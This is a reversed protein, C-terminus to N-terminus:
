QLQDGTIPDVGTDMDGSALMQFVEALKAQVDASVSSEADHFAALGVGDNAADFLATGSQFTGTAATTIANYVANDVRKMASSVIMDAGDTTGGGFTTFYEDQDVGIVWVGDQAAGLIGGSGTPGGAGFIVDAGEAVQSLAATKGRAPDTFSDIYVGITDCDPCAYKVGNEYGNRYKKVPPIEMGAVIGVTKSETLLGALVGALFGAQDERFVIGQLNDPYTEYANDVIAFEIDPYKEAMAATTEGMMFGVTVIMDYGEQAFQEVNKEYDTPQATEIFSTELGLEDAARIMGEYAYQNFTGDDVKGVDTVLGVKIPTVGAPTEAMASPGAYSGPAPVEADIVDGSVGDVGTTLEGSALKAKIDDLSAVVDDPIASEADHFPALGVGDNSAEYLATGGTFSGRVLSQISNYVANDVRKMASSLLKDAGDTTGGGFTTFYEDQDVGIVWAGDQAAGLIGGSGTPGGAGFIVDAGEAIQSLAATKGRAPDTFSDIYVGVTDCDACVYKAGIEYGNRYKKVPPIEMGAVIGVTQSESIMGALAGALFGAQDERFVLGQLNDPYTEYANDVIAFKIDPYKEAMKQTTEGMMFGVTVIMDYGEQAFQEVNKEYDTPQATEIFSVDLGYTEAARQLGEYAYQNFTGDDVKGVDTVLGVRYPASVGKWNQLDVIGIATAATRIPDFFSDDAEAVGEWEYITYIAEKGADTSVIDLLAQKYADVVDAPVDPGATITDNPIDDTLAIVKTKTKIDPFDNELSNRVDVYTAAADARGNYVALAASNHSGAFFSESLTVGNKELLATPYLYGSTSAPDTFAFSKGNLDEISEIGSDAGVIIQGNYFQSGFRVSTVMLQADPCKDKAIVYSLPALWVIDAKGACMAEIAAAYSTAVSSDVYIGKEAMLADLEDAGSLIQETEGSPVFVQILPNEETGKAAGAPTATPEAAAETPAVAAPAETATAQAAPEPATTPEPTAEKSGCAALVMSFVLLLALLAYLRKHM